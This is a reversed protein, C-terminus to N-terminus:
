KGLKIRLKQEEQEELQHEEQEELQHYVNTMINMHYQWFSCM